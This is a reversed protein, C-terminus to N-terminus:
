PQWRSLDISVIGKADGTEKHVQFFAVFRSLRADAPASAPFMEGGYKLKQRRRQDHFDLLVPDLKSPDVGAEEWCADFDNPDAKATVFSGNIYIRRCGAAHLATIARRLGRLLLRRRETFGFAAEVEQWSADHVGRPLLGESTFDPIV